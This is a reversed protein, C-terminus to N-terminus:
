LAGRVEDPIPERDGDLDDGHFFWERFADSDILRNQPGLGDRLDADNWDRDAAARHRELCYRYDVRHLHVLYLGPDPDGDPVNAERHQGTSWALPISSILRKSYLEAPHWHSRQALIPRDFDLPPEQDPYHVVNYGSCRAAVADLSEIYGGLGDHRRPDPVVFEDVEGFLVWRYSSLLFSQFQEVTSRLWTHDFSKDRHIPVVRCRGELGETSGDTSDHDLVYLDEPDFHRGYYRLWLPLFTPENQVVTFAARERRGTGRASRDVAFEASTVETWGGAEARALLTITVTESDAARLDVTGEWGSNLADPVGPIREAIDERPWGLHASTARRGDVLLLAEALPGDEGLAWGAVRLQGPSVAGGPPPTEIM